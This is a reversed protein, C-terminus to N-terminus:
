CQKFRYSGVRASVADGDRFPISIDSRRDLYTEAFYKLLRSDRMIQIDSPLHNIVEQSALVILKARPRSSMVNFRNLSLLFEDEDAIADPDGLAYSAIIM